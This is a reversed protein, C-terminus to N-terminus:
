RERWGGGIEEGRRRLIASTEWRNLWGQCMVNCYSYTYIRRNLSSLTAWNVRGEFESGDKVGKYRTFPVFQLDLTKHSSQHELREM